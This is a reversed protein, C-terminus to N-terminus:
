PQDADHKLTASVETSLDGSVEFNKPTCLFIEKGIRKIDGDIAFVTGNLFDVIRAAVKSDMQSFNVIVARSNLLQTAIQKVDAYLRPEYLTIQSARARSATMPVVKNNDVPATQPNDDYYETEPQDADGFLSKLLKSAM